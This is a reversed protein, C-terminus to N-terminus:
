AIYGLMRSEILRPNDGNAIGVLGDVYMERLAILRSISALLKKAIPLFFLNASGVGYITAVFAVAAISFSSPNLTPGSCCCCSPSM